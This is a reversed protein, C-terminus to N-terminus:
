EVGIYFMTSNNWSEVEFHKQFLNIMRIGMDIYEKQSMEEIDPKLTGVMIYSELKPNIDHIIDGLMNMMNSAVGMNRCEKNVYFRQLAIIDKNLLNKEKLYEIYLFSDGGIVDIDSIITNVKGTYMIQFEIEGVQYEVDDEDFTYFEVKWLQVNTNEFDDKIVYGSIRYEIFDLDEKKM